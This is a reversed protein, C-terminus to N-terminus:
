GKTIEKMVPSLRKKVMGDFDESKVLSVCCFDEDSKMVVVALKDGPKINVNDRVDKPLVMQGREDVTIVAEVKCCSNEKAGKTM